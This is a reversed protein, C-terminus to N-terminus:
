NLTTDRKYTCVLSCPDGVCVQERCVFYMGVRMCVFQVTSIVHDALVLLCTYEVFDTVSNDGWRRQRRVSRKLTKCRFQM